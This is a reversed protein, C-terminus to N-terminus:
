IMIITVNFWKLTLNKNLFNFKENVWEHSSRIVPSSRCLFPFIIKIQLFTEFYTLIGKEAESADSLPLFDSLGANSEDTLPEVFFVSLDIESVPLPDLLALSLVILSLVVPEFLFVSLDIVSFVFLPDLLFVSLGEESFELPDLLFASLVVDDAVGLMLEVSSFETALSIPPSLISESVGFFVGPLLRDAALDVGDLEAAFRLLFIQFISLLDFISKEM